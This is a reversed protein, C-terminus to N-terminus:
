AGCCRTKSCVVSPWPATAWSQSASSGRQLCSCAKTSIPTISSSTQSSPVNPCNVAESMLARNSVGIHRANGSAAIENLRGIQEAVPVDSGPWHRLLLDIHDTGLRALSEEVLLAFNRGYNAPWIKTTIFVEERAVGSKRMAEGVESENGYIQATDIHRFGERLAATLIEVLSEGKMGYTGFGLSPIAAGNADVMHM